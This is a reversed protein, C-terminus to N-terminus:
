KLLSEVPSGNNEIVTDGPNTAQHSANGSVKMGLYNAIIEATDDGRFFATKDLLYQVKEKLTAMQDITGMDYQNLNKDLFMQLTFVADKDLDTLEIMKGEIKEQTVLIANNEIITQLETRTIVTEGLNESAQTSDQSTGSVVVGDALSGDQIANGDATYSTTGAATVAGSFQQFTSTGGNEVYTFNPDENDIGRIRWASTYPFDWGNCMMYGYCVGFTGCCELTQPSGLADTGWYFAVHGDGLVIDGPRLESMPIQYVIDTYSPMTYTTWAWSVEPAFGADSIATYVFSSCDRYGDTMRIAQSYQWGLMAEAAQKLKYRNSHPDVGTWSKVPGKYVVSNHASDNSSSDQSPPVITIPPPNQSSSPPQAPVQPQTPEEPQVVTTDDSTTPPETIEPPVPTEEVQSDDEPNDSTGPDDPNDTDEGQQGEDEVPNSPDQVPDTPETEPNSPDVPTQNPLNPDPNITNGTNDEPTSPVEEYPPLYSDNVDDPIGDGDSDIYMDAIGDGNLDINVDPIGDGDVDINLDPIGDGNTDLNVILIMNDDIEFDQQNMEPISPNSTSTDPTPMETAYNEGSNTSPVASGDTVNSTGYNINNEVAAELQKVTCGKYVYTSLYKFYDNVSQLTKAKGTKLEYIIIADDASALAQTPGSTLCM